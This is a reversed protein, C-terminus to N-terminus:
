TECAMKHSMSISPSKVARAALSGWLGNGRTLYIAETTNQTLIGPLRVGRSRLRRHSEGIARAVTQTGGGGAPDRAHGGAARLACSRGCLRLRLLRRDCGGDYAVGNVAAIIPIPCDLLARTLRELIVHELRWAKDTMDRREKLDGGACFAKNGEGTLIVCRVPGADTILQEFCSM